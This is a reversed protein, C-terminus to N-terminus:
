CLSRTRPASRAEPTTSCGAAPTPATRSSPAISYPRQRRASVEARSTLGIALNGSVTCNTLTVNDALIGGGQSTPGTAVNGSVTSNALTAISANIGGGDTGTVNGSVTSNALTVTSASIGGGRGFASNGSVTSRTLIATSANIGGAGSDSTSGSVTSNILTVTSASIGGSSSVNRRVTSGTLTLASSLGAVQIGGGDTGAINVVARVLKVSGTGPFANNSIGGGDASARNGTVTM